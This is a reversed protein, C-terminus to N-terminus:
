SVARFLSKMWNLFQFVPSPLAIGRHRYLHYIQVPCPLVGIGHLFVIETRGQVIGSCSGWVSVQEDTKELTVSGAHSYAQTLTLGNM